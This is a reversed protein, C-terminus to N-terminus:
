HSVEIIKVNEIISAKKPGSQVTGIIWAPSGGYESFFKCFAVADDRPMCILLGGSTEPSLGQLLPCKGGGAAAKAAAVTHKIVPLTDIVFSVPEKQLLAMENAHHLIGLGSVAMAGHANHVHMLNAAKRNILKMSDLAQRYALRVDDKSLVLSYSEWRQLDYISEYADIAVQTGLAKTLVLVDGDLANDRALFLHQPWYASALAGIIFTSNSKYSAWTMVGGTEMCGERFGDSMSFLGSVVARSMDPPRFFLMMMKECETIGRACLNGAAEACIIKGLVYPNDIMPYRFEIALNQYKGDSPKKSIEMQRLM